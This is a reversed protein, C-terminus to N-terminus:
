PSSQLPYLWSSYRSEQLWTGYSPRGMRGQRSCVLAMRAPDILKPMDITAAVYTTPDKSKFERHPATPKPTSTYLPVTPEVLAVASAVTTPMQSPQAPATTPQTCAALAIGMITLLSLLFYFKKAHQVEEIQHRHESNM